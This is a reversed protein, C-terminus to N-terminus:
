WEYGEGKLINELAHEVTDTHYKGMVRISEVASDMAVPCGAMELMERDNENDGFCLVNEPDIGLRNLVKSLALGKHVGPPMFDLWEAGGTVVTCKNEFSKKWGSIQEETLGTKVYASIKFFPERKVRIDAVRTVDNRVTFRMHEYYSKDRDAIYCTNIGSVLVEAGEVAEIADIIDMALNDTMEECSIMEDDLFTVCGNECIYGIERAVPSFLRKLNGYQRGSAALFMIGRETLRHILGPASASLEQSGNLLLTGDLDSAIMKLRSM